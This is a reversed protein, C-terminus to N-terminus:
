VSSVGFGLAKFNRGPSSILGLLGTNKLLKSSAFALLGRAALNYSM